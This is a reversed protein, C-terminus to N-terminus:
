STGSIENFRNRSEEDLEYGCFLCRNFKMCIKSDCEPCDLPAPRGVGDKIGDRLDIENVKANLEDNSVGLKESMIEWMAQNILVLKSMRDELRYNPERSTKPLHSSPRNAFHSHDTPMEENEYCSLIDFLCLEM